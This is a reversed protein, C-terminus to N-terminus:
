KGPFNTMRNTHKSRARARARRQKSVKGSVTRSTFIDEIDIRETIRRIEDCARNWRIGSDRFKEGVCEGVHVRSPM